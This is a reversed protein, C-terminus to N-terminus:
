TVKKILMISIELNKFKLTNHLNLLFMWFWPKMKPLTHRIRRVKENYYIKTEHFFNKIKSFDNNRNSRRSGRSRGVCWIKIEGFYYLKQSNESTWHWMLIRYKQIILNARIEFLNNIKQEPKVSSIQLNSPLRKLKYKNKVFYKKHM